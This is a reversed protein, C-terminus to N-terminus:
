KNIRDIFWTYHFINMIINNKTISSSQKNNPNVNPHNNSLNTQSFNSSGMYMNHGHPLQSAKFFNSNSSNNEHMINNISPSSGINGSSIGKKNKRNIYNNSLDTIEMINRCAFKYIIFRTLQQPM